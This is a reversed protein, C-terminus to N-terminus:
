PSRPSRHRAAPVLHGDPGLVGLRRLNVAHVINYWYGSTEELYILWEGDLDAPKWDMSPESVVVRRVGTELDSAVIRYGEGSPPRTRWAALHGDIVPRSHVDGDDTLQLPEGTSIRLGHIAGLGTRLDTWLVIDGSLDTDYVAHDRTDPLEVVDGTALETYFVSKGAGGWAIWVAYDENIRHSEAGQTGDAMVTQQDTWRDHLVLDFIGGSDIVYRRFLVYRGIQRPRAGQAYPSLQRLEMTDLDLEMLQAWSVVYEEPPLSSRYVIRNDFLSPNADERENLPSVLYEHCTLLDYLYIEGPAGSDAVGYTVLGGRISQQMTRYSDDPGFVLHTADECPETHGVEVPEIVAVVPEVWADPGADLGADPRLAADPPWENDGPGSDGCSCSGACAALWLGALGVGLGAGLLKRGRTM